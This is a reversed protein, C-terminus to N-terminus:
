AHRRALSDGAFRARDGRRARTGFEGSRGRKKAHDIGAKELTPLWFAGVFFPPNLL